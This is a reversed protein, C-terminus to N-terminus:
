LACYKICIYFQRLVLRTDWHRLLKVRHSKDAFSVPKRLKELDNLSGNVFNTAVRGLLGPKEAHNPLILRQDFSLCNQNPNMFIPSLPSFSMQTNIYLIRLDELQSSLLTSSQDKLDLEHRLGKFVQNLQDLAGAQERSQHDQPNILDKLRSLDSDVAYSYNHKMRLKAKYDRIVVEKTGNSQSQNLDQLESRKRDPEQRLATILSNSDLLQSNFNNISSRSSELEENSFNILFM